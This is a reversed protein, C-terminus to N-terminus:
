QHQLLTFIANEGGRARIFQKKARDLLTKDNANCKHLRLAIADMSHIELREALRPTSGILRKLKEKLASALSDSFTTLLVRCDPHQRAPFGARHLAVITKGTGASGSVRAPGNCNKEVLAQQAPHLFITRKEWPFDLARQLAEAGRMVRFRRQADPHDFPDAQGTASAPPQPIGGVAIEILAESAEAPLHDALDLISDEDAEKVDALWESHCM